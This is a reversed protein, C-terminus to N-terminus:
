DLKKFIPLRFSYNEAPEKQLTKEINFEKALKEELETRMENQMWKKLLHETPQEKMSYVQMMEDKLASKLEKKNLNTEDMEMYERILDRITEKRRSM